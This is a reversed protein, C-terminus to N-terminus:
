SPKSPKKIESFHNRGHKVYAVLLDLVSIIVVKKAVYDDRFTM